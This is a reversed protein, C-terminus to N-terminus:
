EDRCEVNSLEAGSGSVTNDCTVVNDREPKLSFGLGDAGLDATNSRFVNGTGWGDLIEHTQFGDAPSTTGTNGEILWGNGKVDVWSDAEVMGAGDFTNDRLVGDSTGEKLDVSESTTNSIANGEILNRDSADPECDSIDCWNSEATGIYIGEGFKPKRLGTDSITNHLVQNDTSGARLHIAEDGIHSVDLDRIVTDTTADAMVGKQGNRVTFGQLVWHSAGDLHVVYGDDTGGGDLIADRSGCLTIPADPKGAATMTFRGDYRGPAMAIVDGPRAADLAARLEDADTVDVTAETCDPGDAEGTPADSAGSSGSGASGGSEGSGGSTADQRAAWGIAAAGAVIVALVAVVIAVLAGRGPAAATHQEALNSGAHNTM